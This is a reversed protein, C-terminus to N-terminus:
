RMMGVMLQIAADLYVHAERPATSRISRTESLCAHIGSERASEILSKQIHIFSLANELAAKTEIFLKHYTHDVATDAIRKLNEVLNDDEVIHMIMRGELFNM